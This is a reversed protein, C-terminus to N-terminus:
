ARRGCYPCYSYDRSFFKGCYTCTSLGNVRGFEGSGRTEDGDLVVRCNDCTLFPVGKKIRILPIFFLSIYHDVRKLRVGTHACSPCAQPQEELVVTRPQIVFIFFFM